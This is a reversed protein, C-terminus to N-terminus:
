ERVPAVVVVVKTGIAPLRETWAEWEPAAVAEADPRVSPLALVEDGFTVLGIISGSADALYRSGGERTPILLSGAFLWRDISPSTGSPADRIWTAIPEDHRAGDPSVWQARVSLAPGRPAIEILQDGDVRWSGPAGPELGLLLLAAHVDRPRVPLSVLSEHERTGPTCAIQELWGADICVVGELEIQRAALNVAVGPGVLVRSPQAVTVSPAHPPTGSTGALSPALSPAGGNVGEADHASATPARDNEARRGSVSDESARISDAPVLTPQAAGAAVAASDIAPGIGTEVSAHAGANAGGASATDPAAVDSGSPSGGRCGALTASLLVALSAIIPRSAM